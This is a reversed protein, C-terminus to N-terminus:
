NTDTNSKLDDLIDPKQNGTFVIKVMWYNLDKSTKIWQNLHISLWATYLM